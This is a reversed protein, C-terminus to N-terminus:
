SFHTTCVKWHGNEKTLTYEESQPTVKPPNKGMTMSMTGGVKVTCREDDQEVIEYTVNSVDMTLFKRWDSNAATLKYLPEMGKEVEQQVSSCTSALLAIRDIQAISNFYGKIVLLIADADKQKRYQAAKAQYEEIIQRERASNIRTKGAKGPTQPVADVVHDTSAAMAMSAGGLKRQVANQVLLNVDPTDDQAGPAAPSGTKYSGDIEQVAKQVLRQVLTDLTVSSAQEQTAGLFSQMSSKIELKDEFYGTAVQMGSNADLIKYRMGVNWIISRDNGKISAIATGAIRGADSSGALTLGIGVLAGLTSGDVSQKVDAVPEAKLVDFAVLWNTAKFRGKKFISLAEADGLNAALAFENFFEQTDARELVRFNAKSLELEAFDRINNDTVKQVFTANVSKMEGPLVVIEPGPISANIYEVPKYVAEEALEHAKQKSSQCATLSALVMTLLLHRLIRKM